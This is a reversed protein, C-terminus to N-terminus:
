PEGVQGGERVALDQEDVVSLVERDVYHALECFSGSGVPEHEDHADVVDCTADARDVETGAVCNGSERVEHPLLARGEKGVDTSEIVVHAVVRTVEVEFVADVDGFALAGGPLECVDEGASPSPDTTLCEFKAVLVSCVQRQGGDGNSLDASDVGSDVLAFQVSEKGDEL